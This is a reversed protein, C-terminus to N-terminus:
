SRRTPPRWPPRPSSQAAPPTPSAPQVQSAAPTTTNSRARPVAGVVDAGPRYLGTNTDNAFTAFPGAATGDPLSISGTVNGTVNGTLNGAFGGGAALSGAFAAADNARTISFAPSLATGADNYPTIVLDSGANAGGEATTPPSAGAITAM